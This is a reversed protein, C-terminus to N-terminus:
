YIKALKCMLVYLFFVSGMNCGRSKKSEHLNKKCCVCKKVNLSLFFEQTKQTKATVFKFKLKKKWFSFCNKHEMKQPNCLLINKIGRFIIKMSLLLDV